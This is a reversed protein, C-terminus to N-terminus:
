DARVLASRTRVAILNLSAFLEQLYHFFTPRHRSCQRGVYKAFVLFLKKNAQTSLSELAGMWACILEGTMSIGAVPYIVHPFLM